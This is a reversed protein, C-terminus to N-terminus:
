VHARGIQGRKDTAILADGISTLVAALWQESAHFRGGIFCIIGAVALFLLMRVAIESDVALINSPMFFYLKGLGCILLTVLGATGGGYISSVAVAGLFLQYSDVALVPILLLQTGLAVCALSVAIVTGM